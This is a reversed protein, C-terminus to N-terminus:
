VQERWGFRSKGARGIAGGNALDDAVVDIVMRRLVSGDPMQQREERASVRQPGHNNVVVQMGGAAAMAPVMHNPTIHGGNGGMRLLEPGREGVLYTGGARVPGGAARKGSLGGLLSGWWTGSNNAGLAGLAELLKSAALEAMMRKIMDSFSDAIDRFNGDLLDYTADGLFSQINRAAQEAFVTMEGTAADVEAVVNGLTQGMAQAARTYDEFSVEGVALAANLEALERRFHLTAVAAPGEVRAVMDDIRDLWRLRVAEGDMMQETLRQESLRAAENAQALLDAANTAATTAAPNFDFDTGAPNYFDALQRQGPGPKPPNDYWQQIMTELQGLRTQLEDTTPLGVVDRMWNGAAGAAPRNAAFALQKKIREAEQELRVIDDAAAGHTRAAVEEALFTTVNATTVALEALKQAATVASNIIYGFGSRFEQSNLLTAFDDLKPLLDIAATRWVGDMGIKLRAMKNNFEEAQRGAETSLTHGLRDSEDALAELGERGDLLMPIMNQFSRGFIQMGAAMVDTSGRGKRFAEAVDMFVERSNRMQGSADRVRVGLREFAQLPAALGKAAADQARQLRGMSTVLDGMSLDSMNAAHALRSFEETPMQSRQAAKSLEDMANIQKNLQVTGYAVAGAFAVGIAAGVRKATREM